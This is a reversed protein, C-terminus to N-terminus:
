MTWSCFAVVLIALASVFVDNVHSRGASVAEAEMTPPSPAPADATTTMEPTEVCALAGCTSDNSAREADIECQGKVMAETSCSLCVCNELGPCAAEDASLCQNGSALGAYEAILDICSDCLVKQEETAGAATLCTQLTSDQSSCADQAVVVTTTTTSVVTLVLVVVYSFRFMTSSLLVFLFCAYQIYDNSFPTFFLISL